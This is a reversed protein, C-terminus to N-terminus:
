HGHLRSPVDENPYWPEMKRRQKIGMEVKGCIEIDDFQSPRQSPMTQFMLKRAMDQNRCSTEAVKEWHIQFDKKSLLDDEKVVVARKTNESIYVRMTAVDVADLGNYQDENLVIPAMDTTFCLEVYPGIEDYDVPETEPENDLDTLYLEEPELIMNGHQVQELLMDGHQGDDDEAKAMFLITNEPM